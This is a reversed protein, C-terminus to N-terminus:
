KVYEYDLEMEKKDEPCDDPYAFVRIKTDSFYLEVTISLENSKDPFIITTKALARGQVVKPDEEDSAFVSIRVKKQKKNFRKYKRIIPKDNINITQNKKAYISFINRIRIAKTHDCRYKNEELYGQPLSDVDIVDIRPDIANGYTKALTRAQIYDPKLGFRAAGDVVSLIPRSPIILHLKYQSNPGFEKHFLYQLYKSSGLGGVLCIYNTTNKMITDNLLSKVHKIIPMTVINFLYEKWVKYKIQISEETLEFLGKKGLIEANSIIGEVDDVENDEDNQIRDELFTLFDFPLNINHSKDNDNDNTDSKYDENFYFQQKSHRFNDLLEAYGSPDDKSFADIWEKKFIERILKEFEDDIYTSGWPGGIINYIYM